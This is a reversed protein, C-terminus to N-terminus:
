IYVHIDLVIITLAAPLARVLHPVITFVVVFCKDQIAHGRKTDWLQAQAGISVCTAAATGVPRSWSQGLSPVERLPAKM